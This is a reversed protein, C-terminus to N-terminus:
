RWPMAAPLRTSTRAGGRLFSQVQEEVPQSEQAGKTHTSLTGAAHAWPSVTGREQGRRESRRRYLRRHLRGCSRRYRRRQGASRRGQRLLASARCSLCRTSSCSALRLDRDLRPCAPPLGRLGRLQERACYVHAVDCTVVVARLAKWRELMANAAAEAQKLTHLAPVKASPSPDWGLLVPAETENAFCISVGADLVQRAEEVRTEPLPSPKFAVPVEQKKAVEIAKLMPELPLEMQLLLLPGRQQQEDDTSAKLLREVAEVEKKGVKKNAEPCSVTFKVDNTIIQVATGTPKPESDLPESDLQAARGGRVGSIDVFRCFEELNQM